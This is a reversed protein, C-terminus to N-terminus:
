NKAQGEPDLRGVSKLWAKIVGKKVGVVDLLDSREVPETFMPKEANPVDKFNLFVKGLVIDDNAVSGDSPTLVEKVESEKLRPFEAMFKRPEIKGDEAIISFLVIHWYTKSLDKTFM